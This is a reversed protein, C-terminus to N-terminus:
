AVAEAANRKAEAEIYAENKAHQADALDRTGHISVEYHDHEDPASGWETVVGFVTQSVYVPMIELVQDGAATHYDTCFEALDDHVESPHEGPEAWGVRQFLNKLIADAVDTAVDRREMGVGMILTILRERVPDDM